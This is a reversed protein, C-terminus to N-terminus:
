SMWVIHSMLVFTTFTAFGIDYQDLTNGDSNVEGRLTNMTILCSFFSAWYTMLLIIFFRRKIRKTFNDRVM